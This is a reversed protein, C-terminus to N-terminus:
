LAEKEEPTLIRAEQEILVPIGDRIPYVLRDFCCVLAKKKFLLKGQCVPCALMTLLKKDM